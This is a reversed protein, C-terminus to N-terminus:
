NWRNHINVARVDQMRISEAHGDVYAFSSQSNQRHRFRPAWNGFDLDVYPPLTAQGNSSDYDWPWAFWNLPNNVWAPGDGWPTTEPADCFAMWDSPRKADGIRINVPKSWSMARIAESNGAIHRAYRESLMGQRPMEPCHYLPSRGSHTVGNRSSTEAYDDLIQYWWRGDGGADNLMHVLHDDSDNAYLLTAGMIQKVQSVCKISRAAGRATSLAPLLLSALIAIIAVVVLLEILTFQSHRYQSWGRKM